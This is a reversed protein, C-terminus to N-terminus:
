NESKSIKIMYEDGIQINNQTLDDKNSKNNEQNSETILKKDSKKDDESKKQNNTKKNNKAISIKPLTRHNKNIRLTLTEQENPNNNYNTDIHLKDKFDNKEKEKYNGIINENNINNENNHININNINDSIINDKNFNQSYNINIENQSIKINNHSKKLEIENNINNIQQNLSFRITNQSSFLNDKKIPINNINNEEENNNISNDNPNIDDNVDRNNRDLKLQLRDSEQRNIIIVNNNIINPNINEDISNINQNNIENDNNNIELNKEPIEINIIFLIITSIFSCVLFMISLFYKFQFRRKNYLDLIEKYNEDMDIEIKKFEKTVKIYFAIEIAFMATLIFIRIFFFTIHSQKTSNIKNFLNLSLYTIYYIFIILLPFMIIIPKIYPYIDGGIKYLCNNYHDSKNFFKEFKKFDEVTNFGIYNTTFWYLKSNKNMKNGITIDNEILNIPIEVNELKRYINKDNKIIKNIDRITIEENQLDNDQSVFKNKYEHSLPPIESIINRIIIKKNNPIQDINSEIIFSNQELLINNIPCLSENMAYLHRDMTDIIGCDTYNEPCNFINICYLSNNNNLLLDEYNFSAKQIQIKQNMFTNIDKYYKNYYTCLRRRPDELYEEEDYNLIKYNNINPNNLDFNYDSCYIIGGNTKSCCEARCCTWNNNIIRDQCIEENLEGDKVGRCDFFSNFKLEATLDQQVNSSNFFSYSLINSYVEQSFQSFLLRETKIERTKYNRYNENEFGQVILLISAIIMFITSILELIISGCNILIDTKLYLM